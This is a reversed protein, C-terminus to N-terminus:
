LVSQIVFMVLSSVILFFSSLPIFAARGGVPRTKDKIAVTSIKGRKEIRYRGVALPNHTLDTTEQTSQRLSAVGVDKAKGGMPFGHIGNFRSKAFHDNRCGNVVTQLLAQPIQVVHDKM